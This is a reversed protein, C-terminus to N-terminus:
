SLNSYVRFEEIESNNTFGSDVAYAQIKWLGALSLDGAITVYQIRGDTGDTTFVATREIVTKDPLLFKITMTTALSLDIPLGSECDVIQVIFVTGIDGARIQCTM